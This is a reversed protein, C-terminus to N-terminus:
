FTKQKPYLTTGPTFRPNLYDNLDTSIIRDIQCEAGQGRCVCLCGGVRRYQVDDSQPQMMVEMPDVITHLVM